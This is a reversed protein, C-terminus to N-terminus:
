AALAGESGETQRCGSAPRRARYWYGAGYTSVEARVSALRGRPLNIPERGLKPLVDWDIANEAFPPAYQGLGLSRLWEAIDM